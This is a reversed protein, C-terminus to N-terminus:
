PWQRWGSEEIWSPGPSRAPTLTTEPFLRRIARAAEMVNSRRCESTLIHGDILLCYPSQEYFLTKV